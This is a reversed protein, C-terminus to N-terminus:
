DHYNTQVAAVAVVEGINIVSHGWLPPVYLVDGSNQVCTRTGTANTEHQCKLKGTHPLGGSHKARDREFADFGQSLHWYKSGHIIACWADSHVHMGLGSGNSGIAFTLLSFEEFYPLPKLDAAIFGLTTSNKQPPPVYEFIYRPNQPASCSGITEKVCM